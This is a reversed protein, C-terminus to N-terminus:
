VHSHTLDSSIPLTIVMFQRCSKYQDGCDSERLEKRQKRSLFENQDYLANCFNKTNPCIIQGRAPGHLVNPLAGSEYTLPGPNSVRDPWM